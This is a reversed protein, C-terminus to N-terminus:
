ANEHKQYRSFRDLLQRLEANVRRRRGLIVDALIREERLTLLPYRGIEKVYRKIIDFGPSGGGEDPPEKGFHNPRIQMPTSPRKSRM